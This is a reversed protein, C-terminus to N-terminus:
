TKPLAPLTAGPELRKIRFLLDRAALESCEVAEGEIRGVASLSLLNRNGRVAKVTIRRYEL